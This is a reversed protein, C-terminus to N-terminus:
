GGTVRPRANTIDSLKLSIRNKRIEDAMELAEEHIPDYLLIKRVYEAATKYSRQSMYVKAVRFYCELLKREIVDYEALLADRTTVRSEKDLKAVERLYGRAEKYYREAGDPEVLNKRARSIQGKEAAAVGVDKKEDGKRLAASKKADLAAIRRSLADLEAKAASEEAAGAREAAEKELEAVLRKVLPAYQANLPSEPYRERLRRIAALCTEPEEETEVCRDIATAIYLLESEGLERARNEFDSEGIAGLALAVELEAFAEPFLGLSAAFASLALRGPADDFSALAKRAAFASAPRLAKWAIRRATGEKEVEVGEADCSVPRAVLIGGDVLELRLPEGAWALASLLLIGGITRLAM